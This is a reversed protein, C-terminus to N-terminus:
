IVGEQLIQSTSVAGIDIALEDFFMGQFVAVHNPKALMLKFIDILM